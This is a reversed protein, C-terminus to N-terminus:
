KYTNFEFFITYIGVFFQVIYYAIGSIFLVRIKTKTLAYFHNLNKLMMTTLKKYVVINVILLFLKLTLDFYDESLNLDHLVKCLKDKTRDLNGNGDLCQERYILIALTDFFVFHIIILILVAVVILLEICHIERRIKIFPIDNRLKKFKNCYIILLIPYVAVMILYGYFWELLINHILVILIVAKESIENIYRLGTFIVQLILFAAALFCWAVLIWDINPKRFNSIMRKLQIIALITFSLSIVINLAIEFFYVGKSANSM